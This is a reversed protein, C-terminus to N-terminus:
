LSRSGDTFGQRYAEDSGTRFLDTEAERLIERASHSGEHDVYHGLGRLVAVPVGTAKGKVLDAASAIEDAICRVTVALPKGDSDTGGRADDLPRIGACGIAIDTQGHRWPRGVTDTVVVGIRVGTHARIEGLLRRASGDPDEPLLLIREGPVNSADIGAAAAVIGLRNEVILPQETGPVHAVVRVSERRLAEEREDAPLFRDEAKSIVKSTVALIDGDQLPLDATADLIEQSLSHAATFEPLGLVPTISLQVPTTSPM